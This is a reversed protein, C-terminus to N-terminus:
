RLRREPDAPDDDVYYIEGLSECRLIEARLQRGKTFYYITMALLRRLLALDRMAKALRSENPDSKSDVTRM